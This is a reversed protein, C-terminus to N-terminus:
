MTRHDQYMQLAFEGALTSRMALVETRMRDPVEDVSPISGGFREPLLLPAALAAFTLDAAGFASGVLYQRGDSLRESIRRFVDQCRNLSRQVREPSVGYGRRILPRALYVISPALMREIKPTGHRFHQALIRRDPLLHGYAWRRAQPGLQSDLMREIEIAESTLRPDDPFLQHTRRHQHAWDLIAGSDTLATHPTVLLPVSAGGFRATHLRHLLPVHPEERYAIGARDLGWRAKECYHSLPLSILLPLSRPERAEPGLPRIKSTSTEM